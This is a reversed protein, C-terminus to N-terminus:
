PNIQLGSPMEFVVHPHLIFSCSPFFPRSPNMETRNIKGLAIEECIM